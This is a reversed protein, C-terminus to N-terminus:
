QLHGSFLSLVDVTTASRDFCLIFALVQEQTDEFARISSYVHYLDMNSERSPNKTSLIPFTM